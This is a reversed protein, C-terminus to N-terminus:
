TKIQGHLPASGFEQEIENCLNNLSQEIRLQTDRVAEAMNGESPYVPEGHAWVLLARPKPVSFRDWSNLQWCPVALFANPLIPTNTGVALMAAGPKAVRRPGKPGDLTLGVVQSLDLAKRMEGLAKRGGRSSSGRLALLGFRSVVRAAIEGDFSYSTLTHYGTGRYFWAALGLHEHWFGVLLRGKLDLARDFREKNCIQVHGTRCLLKYAGALLPATVSLQIRQTLSFSQPNSYDLPKQM